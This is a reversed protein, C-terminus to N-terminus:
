DAAVLGALADNSQLHAEAADNVERSYMIVQSQTAPVVTSGAEVVDFQTLHKGETLRDALYVCSSVLDAHYTTGPRAIWRTLFGM